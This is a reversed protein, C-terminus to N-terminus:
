PETHEKRAEQIESDVAKRYTLLEDLFGDVMILMNRDCQNLKPAIHEDIKFQPDVGPSDMIFYDISKGLLRSLKVMLELSLGIKGNEINCIHTSTCGCLGALEDQTMKIEKRAAKIRRGVFVSDIVCDELTTTREKEETIM